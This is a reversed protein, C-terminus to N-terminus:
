CCSKRGAERPPPALRKTVARNGSAQNPAPTGVGGKRGGRGHINEQAGGAARRQSERRLRIWNGLSRSFPPGAWIEGGLGHEPQKLLTRRFEGERHSLCAARPLVGPDTVPRLHLPM